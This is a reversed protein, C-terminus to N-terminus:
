AATISATRVQFLELWPQRDWDLSWNQRVARYGSLWRVQWQDYPTLRGEASRVRRYLHMVGTLVTSRDDGARLGIGGRGNLWVPLYDYQSGNPNNWRGCYVAHVEPLLLGRVAYAQHQDRVLALADELLHFQGTKHLRAFEASIARQQDLSYRVPFAAPRILM